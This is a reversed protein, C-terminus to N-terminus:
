CVLVPLRVTHGLPPGDVSFRVPRGEELFRAMKVLSLPGAGLMSYTFIKGLQFTKRTFLATEPLVRAIAYPAHSSAGHHWAVFALPKGDTLMSKVDELGDYSYAFNEYDSSNDPLSAAEGPTILRTGHITPRVTMLYRRYVVSRYLYTWPPTRRSLTWWVGLFARLLQAGTKPLQFWDERRRDFRAIERKTSFACPVLQQRSM